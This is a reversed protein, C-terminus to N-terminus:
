YARRRRCKQEAQKRGSRRLFSTRDNGCVIFRREHACGFSFFVARKFFSLIKTFFRTNIKQALFEARV